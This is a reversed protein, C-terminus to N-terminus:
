NVFFINFVYRPGLCHNIGDNLGKKLVNTPQLLNYTIMTLRYVIM